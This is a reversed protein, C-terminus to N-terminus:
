LFFGSNTLVARAAQSLSHGVPVLKSGTQSPVRSSASGPGVQCFWVLVVQSVGRASLLLVSPARAATNWCLSTRSRDPLSFEQRVGCFVSVWHPSLGMSRTERCMRFLDACHLQIQTNPEPPHQDVDVSGPRDHCRASTQGLATSATIKVHAPSGICCLLASRSSLLISFCNKALLVCWGQLVPVVELVVLVASSFNRINVDSCIMAKHTPHHSRARPCGVTELDRTASSCCVFTCTDLLVVLLQHIPPSTHESVMICTVGIQFESPRFFNALFGIFDQQQSWSARVRVTKLLSAPFSGLSVSNRFRQSPTGHFGLVGNRAARTFM